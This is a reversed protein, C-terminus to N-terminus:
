RRAVFYANFPDSEVEKEEVHGFGAEALMAAAREVGWVTGLGDGDLGLSVSMCHYTSIAYLYTGWPLGVNKELRSSAKIDVMLFTGGPRLARHVNALVAAPHAQDHVADFATVLDFGSDVSLEAVDLVEFSANTVGLTRAEERAADIAVDSFDYGVFRSAPFVQAMLNIAHGRGCGVDAVDIGDRLGDTMAALPLIADVLADDHVAASTEAMTRHFQPFDAYSLGGGHRFREITRQEVEGMMAVHQMLVAVNNPGPAGTLVAAHEAPLVYTASAPDYRVVGATTMGGLWERVYREHLGSADAVQDSTAPPLAALTEFLGTQHGTSTLVALAADDLVGLMRGAFAEAAAADFPPAVVTGTGAAATGTSRSAPTTTSM